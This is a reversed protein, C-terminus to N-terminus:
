RDRCKDYGTDFFKILESNKSSFNFFSSQYTLKIIENGPLAIANDASSCVFVSFLRFFLELVNMTPVYPKIDNVNCLGLCKGGLSQARNMAFNDVIGGDVYFKGDLEFPSFMFPFTSSMRAAKVVNLDPHTASSVYEKAGDTMNFAVFYLHKGFRDEVQSMTPVYGVRSVIWNEVETEIPEFNLIGGAALNALNFSSVKSYSKNVCLCSLVDIPDFDLAILLSLFSGSSTGFFTTLEGKDLTREDFLRQLAGLTFVANTSNGSLVLTDYGM